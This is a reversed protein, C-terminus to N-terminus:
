GTTRKLFVYFAGSGGHRQHSPSISVIRSRFPGEMWQLFRRRLIGRESGHGHHMQSSPSIGKGTIVLVIRCHSVQAMTLFRELAKYAEEQTMGHLDLTADIERRGRRVHRVSRPDGAEMVPQLPPNETRIMSHSSTKAIHRTSPKKAKRKKQSIVLKEAETDSAAVHKKERVDKTVRQWLRREDDSLRRRM